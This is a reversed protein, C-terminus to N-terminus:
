KSLVTQMPDLALKLTGAPAVFHFPTEPGDAFVRGLLVQRNATVAYVPVSTVLFEPAEKQLITGNVNTSGSRTSIKVDDLSYHPVATGDVWGQFFWDLSKHGEFQLAPPLVAEFAQQVDATSIKKYRFDDSLKRLVRFFLEDPDGRSEGKIGKAGRRPQEQSTDHLMHRLMHFLWTSRGYSVVDYGSPFKSSTLRLGLTVPGADHLPLGSRTKRMLDQRYRELLLRAEAPNESEILLLACYNALGEVIWQDRYSKWGVADGWWQHAIEHAPMLKAFMLSTSDSLQRQSREESSMFVYSSLFVMGPWGQSSAGPMQTLALSSFPFPGLRHSLWEVARASGQAVAQGHQAPDPRPPPLAPMTPPRRQPGASPVPFLPVPAPRSGPFADEMARTAFAEVTVDGTKATARDYQGLNFGAVPIPHESIWHAVEGAAGTELHVRKGTAVLVWPQPYRFEIDFNSMELGRNPYWIGKAGVYMLGGGAESMVPGAYIFKLQTRTGADLPKSFIVAVVDNGRRALQSGQLAENQVFEVPAESGATTTVSNVKLFRSLEFFLIRQGGREADLTLEAEAELDHPPSVHARIRYKTVHIAGLEREAAASREAPSISGPVFASWMDYFTGDETHSVQGVWVPEAMLEDYSVDFTGLRSGGLRGHLMREPKNGSPQNLFSRLLRLADADALTRAASNWREIFQPAEKAPRLDPLMDEFTQDNFRLYASSFKEELIAAGTFLALSAREVRNPPSVLVEGEGEFFASTVHGDIARSFAITGDHFTLHLAQRDISVDRIHYVRQADLTVERLERYLALPKSEGAPTTQATTAACCLSAAVVVLLRAMVKIIMRDSLNVRSHARTRGRTMQTKREFGAYGLDIHARLAVGPKKDSSFWPSQFVVNGRDIGGLWAYAVAFFWIENQMKLKADQVRDAAASQAPIHPGLGVTKL